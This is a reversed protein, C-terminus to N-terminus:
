ALKIINNINFINNNKSYHINSIYYNVIKKLFIILISFYGYIQNLPYFKFSYSSSNSMNLIIFIIITM